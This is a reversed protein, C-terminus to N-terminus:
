RRPADSAPRSDPSPRTDAAVAQPRTAAGEIAGAPEVAAGALAYGPRRSLVVIRGGFTSGIIEDTGNRGDLEGAALWHGQDDAAFITEAQWSLGPARSLLHVKGAYGLVAISERASDAHFRGAVIGRPGQPGAFVPERAWDGGPQQEFRLVLGDDRTVYLVEAAALTGSEAADPVVERRAIRGLGMSERALTRRELGQEGLRLLILEGSRAVAAFWPPQGNRAPLVITQRVRGDLDGIRTASFGAGDGTPRLEHVGGSMTFALLEDGGLKPRLDAALITHIEEGPFHAIEVSELDFGADKPRLQVRHLNGARGGAYLEDGPVRPDVDAPAALALWQHDPITQLATWKGSYCSLVLLRGKDDGAVLEPCGYAPIVKAFHVYWVGADGAHALTAIWDAAAPLRVEGQSPDQAVLASALVAAFPFSFLPRRFGTRQRDTRQRGRSQM